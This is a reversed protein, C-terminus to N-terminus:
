EKECEGNGIRLTVSGQDWMLSGVAVAWTLDDLQEVLNFLRASVLVIGVLATIVAILITWFRYNRLYWVLYWPNIISPKKRRSPIDGMRKRAYGKPESVMRGM